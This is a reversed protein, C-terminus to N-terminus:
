YVCAGSFCQMQHESQMSSVTRFISDFTVESEVDVDADYSPSPLLSPSPSLLMPECSDTQILEVDMHTGVRPPKGMTICESVGLVHDTDGYVAADSLVNTTVEFSGQMLPGVSQHKVVGFRTVGELRGTYTMVDTLLDIHAPLVYSSGFEFVKLAERRLVEKAAEIGLVRQVEKFDNCYSRLPDTHQLLLIRPDDFARSCVVVSDSDELLHAHQQGREVPFLLTKPNSLLAFAKEMKKESNRKALLRGSKSRLHRIHIVVRESDNVDTPMILYDGHPQLLAELQAALLEISFDSRIKHEDCQLRLVRDSLRKCIEETETLLYNEQIYLEEEIVADTMDLLQVSLLLKYLEANATLSIFDQLENQVDEAACELQLLLRPERTTKVNVIEELRPFGLTIDMSSQGCHHFTNLTMQTVDSGLAQAAIMGVAEGPHIASSIFHRETRELLWQLAQESLKLQQVVVKSALQELLLWQHLTVAGEIHYRAALSALRKALLTVASAATERDVVPGPYRCRAEFAARSCNFATAVQHSWEELLQKHKNAYAWLRVINDNEARLVTSRGGKDQWLHSSKLQELSWSHMRISQIELATPELGHYGYRPQIISGNSRRVSGDFCVVIDEMAKVLRRQVYGTKSTKIATDMLGERGAAAHVVYESPSLGSSYSSSIYGRSGPSHDSKAYYPLRRGTDRDEQIPKGRIAQTGIALMMQTLTIFSGKSGSNVISAISNQRNRCVDMVDTVRRDRIMDLQSIIQHDDLGEASFKAEDEAKAADLKQYDATNLLMDSLGISAGHERLWISVITQVRNLFLAVSKCGLDKHIIRILGSRGNIEKATLTGQLLQGDKIVIDEADECRKWMYVGTPIAYSYVERGSWSKKSHLNPLCVGSDLGALIMSLRSRSIKVDAATILSSGYLSDQILKIIPSCTKPNIIHHYVMNLEEIETRAEISQPVHLNMEDGDFDANYATCVPLRLQFNLVGRLVKVRHGMESMRHLSPQRNMVVVDGDILHREVRDGVCLRVSTSARLDMRSGDQLIVYNAGPWVDPGNNVANYLSEMNLQTVTVPVTLIKCIAEPTGVEDIDFGYGPGIVTRACFDVRKGQLNGRVRGHKGRLRERLTMSEVQQKRDNLPAMRGSNVASEGCIYDNIATQLASMHKHLTFAAVDSDKIDALKTNAYVVRRLKNTLESQREEQASFSTPRINLPPIPFATFLMAEPRQSFGLLEVNSDTVLRLVRLVETAFLPGNSMDRPRDDSIFVISLMGRSPMKVINPRVHLCLPCCKGRMCKGISCAEQLRQKVDIHLLESADAYLAGCFFCVANLLKVIRDLYNPNYAPAALELHGWHGPCENCKLGCTACSSRRSGASVGLRADLLGGPAVIRRKQRNDRIYLDPTTVELVSRARIDAESSLCFYVADM